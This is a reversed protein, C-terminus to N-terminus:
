ALQGTLYLRLWVSELVSWDSNVGTNCGISDRSFQGILKLAGSNYCWSDIWFHSGSPNRFRLDFYFDDESSSYVKYFTLNKSPRTDSSLLVESPNTKKNNNNQLITHEHKETAL